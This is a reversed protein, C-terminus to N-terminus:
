QKNEFDLKQQNADFIDFYDEITANNWIKGKM